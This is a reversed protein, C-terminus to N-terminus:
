ELFERHFRNILRRRLKALREDDEEEPDYNAAEIEEDTTAFHELECPEPVFRRNVGRYGYAEGLSDM